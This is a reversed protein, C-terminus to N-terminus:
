KAFTLVLMSENHIHSEGMYDISRLPAVEAFTFLGIIPVESIQDKAFALEKDITRGLLKLRSLSDFILCFLIKKDRVQDTAEWFSQMSASLCADKTGMMLKIQSNNPVDAQCTLSGDNELRLVNRLIYEREAELYIGLPYFITIQSLPTHLLEEKAKDFYDEYVKLAPLNDIQQINNESSATVEHTRGIPKWGHKAGKGFHLVRSCVLLGVAANNYVGTNFYVFSKKFCFNDTAFGGFIPFSMGFRNKLGSVLDTPNNIDSCSLLIFMNRQTDFLKELCSEALREGSALSGSSNINQELGTIFSIEDSEILMVAVGKRETGKATIIGAGSAGIINVEPMISLVGELLKQSAFEISSFVIALKASEAGLNLKAELCAKEGAEFIDEKQSFGVGINTPM